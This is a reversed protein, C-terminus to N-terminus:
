MQAILRLVPRLDLSPNTHGDFDFQADRSEVSNGIIRLDMENIGPKRYREIHRYWLDAPTRFYDFQAGHVFFPLGDVRFEPENGNSVIQVGLPPAVPKQPPPKQAAGPVSYLAVVAAAILRCWMRRFPLRLANSNALFM